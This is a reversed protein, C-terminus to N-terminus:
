QIETLPPSVPDDRDATILVNFPFELLGARNLTAMSVTLKWLQDTRQHSSPLVVVRPRVRARRM